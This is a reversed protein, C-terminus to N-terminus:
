SKTWIKRSLGDAFCVRKGTYFNDVPTEDEIILHSINSAIVEERANTKTKTDM